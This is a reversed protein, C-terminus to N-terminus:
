SHKQQIEVRQERHLTKQTAIQTLEQQIQKIDSEVKHIEIEKSDLKHEQQDLKQSKLEIKKVHLQEELKQLEQERQQLHKEREDLEKERARWDVHGQKINQHDKSTNSHGQNTTSKDQGMGSHTNTMIKSTHEKSINNHGEAGYQNAEEKTFKNAHDQSQNFGHDKDGAHHQNDRENTGKPSSLNNNNTNFSQQTLVSANDKGINTHTDTAQRHSSLQDQNQNTHSNMDYKQDQTKKDNDTKTQSNLINTNAAQNTNDRNGSEQGDKNPPNQNQIMNKKLDTKIPEGHIEQHKTELKKTEEEKHAMPNSQKEHFAKLKDPVIDSGSEFRDIYKWKLYQYEEDTEQSKRLKDADKISKNIDKNDDGKTLGGKTEQNSKTDGKNSKVDKNAKAHGHKDEEEDSSIFDGRKNSPHDKAVGKLNHYDQNISVMPKGDYEVGRLAEVISTFNSASNFKYKHKGDNTHIFLYFKNSDAKSIDVEVQKIDKFAFQEKEDIKQGKEEVTYVIHKDLDVTIFRNKSIGLVKAFGSYIKTPATVLNDGTYQSNITYNSAM